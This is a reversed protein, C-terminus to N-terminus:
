KAKEKTNAILLILSGHSGWFSLANSDMESITADDFKEWSSIKHNQCGIQLHTKSFAVSWYLGNLALLSSAKPGTWQLVGTCDTCDTCRTCDMCDMCDMCRTCRTCDSCRTCRSCDSCDSCGSCGSCRTCGTCGSCGSCDSCNRNGGADMEAAQADAAEQSKFSVGMNGKPTKASKYKM